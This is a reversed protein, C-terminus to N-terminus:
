APTIFHRCVALLHSESAAYYYATEPPSQLAVVLKTIELGGSDTKVCSESNDSGQPLTSTWRSWFLM